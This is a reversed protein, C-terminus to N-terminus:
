SVSELWPPVFQGAKDLRKDLQRADPEMTALYEWYSRSHDMFRTHALEHLLVYRALEPPLFLLKYNLSLTGSSSYSGWLTRQGRISMKRYSVDHEAALGRLWPDFEAKAEMKLISALLKLLLHRDQQYGAVTLVDGDLIGTIETSVSARRGVLGGDKDHRSAYRCEITRGVARLYLQEPPWILFEPATQRRIKDFQDLIWERNEAIVEPVDKRRFWKPITIELGTVPIVRLSVGRARRSVKINFQELDPQPEELTFELQM